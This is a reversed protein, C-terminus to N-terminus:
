FLKLYKELKTKFTLYNINAKAIDAEFDKRSYRKVLLPKKKVEPCYSVFDVWELGPHVLFYQAIQPRYKSPSGDKIVYECHVKATPCKFEVAGVSGVLGDPSLGLYKFDDNTIYGIREVSSFTEIEYKELAFPELDIGVQMATTLYFDEEKGTQIEAVIKYIHTDMRAPTTLAIADSGGVRGVRINNWEESRQEMRHITIKNEM